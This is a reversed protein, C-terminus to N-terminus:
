GQKYTIIYYTDLFTGHLCMRVYSCVSIDNKARLLSVKM